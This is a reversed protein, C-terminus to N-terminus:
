LQIVQQRPNEKDQYEKFSVLASTHQPFHLRFIADFRSAKELEKRSLGEFIEDYLILEPRMLMARAFGALRKEFLTLQDPLKLLFADVAVADSLGCQDLLSIVADELSGTFPIAHYQVPLVINDWVPLNSILGGNHPVIVVGPQSGLNELLASRQSESRVVLCYSYGSQLLAQTGEEGHLSLTFM